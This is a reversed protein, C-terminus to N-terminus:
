FHTPVKFYNAIKNLKTQNDYTSNLLIYFSYNRFILKTYNQTEAYPIDEMFELTNGNFRTEIWNKVVAEGANYSAATLVWSGEFIKRQKSLYFVGLPINVEPKYLDEPNKYNVGIQPSEIEAVRPLIQLLGFADAVSRAKENFLSEQRMIAYTYEYDVGFRESQKDVEDFYPTSFYWRASKEFLKKRTANDLEVMIRQGPEFTQALDCLNLVSEIIPLTKESQELRLWFDVIYRSVVDHENILALWYGTNLKDHILNDDPALHIPLDSLSLEKMEIMRVFSLFGYYGFTNNEVGDEYENIAKGKEGLKEYVRGLWHTAKFYVSFNAQNEAEAKLRNLETVVHEFHSLKYENWAYNWSLDITFEKDSSQGLGAKFYESAKEFEQKEQAIRGKLWYMQALSYKGDLFQIARDLQAEAKETSEVTWLDRVYQLAADHYFKLIEPEPIKKYADEFYKRLRGTEVVSQPKNNELKYVNRIGMKASYIKAYEFLKEDYDETTDLKKQALEIWKKYYARAELFRRETRLDNAIELVKDEPVKINADIYLTPALRLIEDVAIKDNAAKAWALAKKALAKKEKYVLRLNEGLPLAEETKLYSIVRKYDQKMTKFGLKMAEAKLWNRSVIALPDESSGCAQMVRLSVLESLGEAPSSGALSLFKKCAIKPQSELAASAELYTKRWANEDPTLPRNNAYGTACGSIYLIALWLFQIYLHPMNM